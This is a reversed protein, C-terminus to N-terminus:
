ELKFTAESLGQESVLTIKADKGRIDAIDVGALDLEFRLKGPAVIKAADPKLLPMYTGDSNEVYATANATGGPFEAEFALSPKPTDLFVESKTLRPDNPRLSKAPRAVRELAETVSSPLAEADGPAIDLTLEADVPVCIDRCIGYDLTLVLSMPKSPDKATLQVPFIASGKYGLTDGAKDAFRTPVPYLVTASAVNTSKDWNFGPPVGGGDGPMRWYTKWGDALQIEVAAMPRGGNNGTILRAKTESKGTTWATAHDQALAPSIASLALGCIIAPLLRRARLSSM